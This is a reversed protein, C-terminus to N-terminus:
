ARLDIPEVKELLDCWRERLANISFDAEMLARGSKGMAASARQDETAAIGALEEYDRAVVFAPTAPQTVGRFVEDLGFVCCGHALSDLMRNKQGTGSIDPLFVSRTRGLHASLEDVRSIYEVRSESLEPLRRHAEDAPVGGLFQWGELLNPNRALVARLFRRSGEVILDSGLSGWVLKGVRQEFPLLKDSDPINVSIPIVKTRVDPNIETLKVADQESVLHVVEARHAFKRETNLAFQRRIAFHLRQKLRSSYRYEEGYLYSMCDHGSFVFGQPASFRALLPAGSIYDILVRLAGGENLRERIVSEEAEFDRTVTPLSLRTLASRLLRLSRRRRLATFKIDSAAWYKRVGAFDEPTDPYILCEIAYQGSLAQMVDHVKKNHGNIPPAPLADCTILLRDRM